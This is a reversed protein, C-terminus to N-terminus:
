LAYIPPYGRRPTVCAAMELPVNFDRSRHAYHPPHAETTPKNSEQSSKAVAVRGPLYIEGTYAPERAGGVVVPENENRDREFGTRKPNERKRPASSARWHSLPIASGTASVVYLNLVPLHALLCAAGRSCDARAEVNREGSNRKMRNRETRNQRKEERRKKERRLWRM